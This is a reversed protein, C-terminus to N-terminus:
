RTKIKKTLQATDNNNAQLIADYNIQTATKTNDYFEVTTEKHSRSTIKEYITDYIKRIDGINDDKAFRMPTDKINAKAISKLIFPQGKLLAAIDRFTIKMSPNDPTGELVVKQINDWPVFARRLVQQNIFIGDETVGFSPKTTDQRFRIFLYFVVFAFLFRSAYTFVAAPWGLTTKIDMGNSRVIGEYTYGYFCRAIIAVTACIGIFISMVRLDHKRKAKNHQASIIFKLDKM